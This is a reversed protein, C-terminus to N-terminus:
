AFSSQGTVYGRLRGHSQRRVVPRTLFLDLTVPSGSIAFRGAGAIPLRAAALCQQPSAPVGDMSTFGAGRDRSPGLNFAAVRPELGVAIRM